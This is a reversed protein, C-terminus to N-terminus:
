RLVPRRSCWKSQPDAKCIGAYAARVDVSASAGTAPAEVQVTDLPRDTALAVAIQRQVIRVLGGGELANVVNDPVVTVSVVQGAAFGTVKVSDGGIDRDSGTLRRPVRALTASDLTVTAGDITISVVLGDVVDAAVFTNVPDEEDALPRPPLLQAKGGNSASPIVLQARDTEIQGPGTTATQASASMTISAALLATVYAPLSAYMRNM